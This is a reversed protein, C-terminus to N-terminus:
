SLTAHRTSLNNTWINSEDFTTRILDAPPYSKQRYLFPHCKSEAHMIHKLRQVLLDILICHLFLQYTSVTLLTPTCCLMKLIVIDWQNDNRCDRFKKAPFWHMQHKCLYINYLFRECEKEIFHWNLHPIHHSKLWSYYLM